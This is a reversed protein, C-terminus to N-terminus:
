VWLDKYIQDYDDVKLMTIGVKELFVKKGFFDADKEEKQTYVYWGKHSRSNFLTYYKARQMLLWRLFTENESLKLGIIFLSKNFIIHLWTRYGVWKVTNKGVFADTEFFDNKHIKQWAEKTCRIYDSLGLCLSQPFSSYGHIHWIGFGSCPDELGKRGYYDSWRFVESRMSSKMTQYQMLCPFWENMKKSISLDFNTTLIPANMEYVSRLMVSLDDNLKWDRIENCVSEKLENSLLVSLYNSSLIEDLKKMSKYLEKSNETILWMFPDVNIGLGHFIEFVREKEYDTFVFDHQTKYEDLLCKINEKVSEIDLPQNTVLDDYFLESHILKNIGIERGIHNIISEHWNGQIVKKRFTHNELADFIETYSIGEKVQGKENSVFDEFEKGGIKKLLDGWAMTQSNKYRNIGNGILFAIDHHNEKIITKIDETKYNYKMDVM